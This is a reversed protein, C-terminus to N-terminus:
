FKCLGPGGKKDVGSQGFFCWSCVRSPTAKYTTDSLMKKTRKSWEKQLKLAQTRTFILPEENETEDPVIVGHDLFWYECQVETIHDPGFIFGLVAYLELQQITRRNVKGTKYDVIILRDGDVYSLDIKARLWAVDWAKWSCPNWDIDVALEQEVNLIKKKKRLEKFEDVFLELEKPIRKIKGLSYDEALKHIRNGRVLPSNPDPNEPEKIKDVKKFRVLLPCNQYDNFTSFSWSKIASNRKKPMM